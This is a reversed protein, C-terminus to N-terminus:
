ENPGGSPRLYNSFLPSKPGRYLHSDAPCGFEQELMSIIRPLCFGGQCRGTMTRCRQKIGILTIPGFIRLIASRVEAKSIEECRCLLAGFDPDEQLKAQRFEDSYYALPYPQRYIGEKQTFSPDWEAKMQVPVLDSVLELVHRAIAPSATLGPSEIGLLHIVRPHSTQQHIVFDHFGGISPPNLKPRLGAFSRIFDSTQLSPLLAQGEAKLLDMIETTSSFDQPDEIYENSPGILINGETTNTLHIGLGGSHAGPVPYILLNLEEALRKDLVYYEGRCPHITFEEYGTMRAVADAHLGACNIIVQTRIKEKGNTTRLTIEYHGDPNKSIAIAESLFRYAVGNAHAHEGLAITFSIPNIIGTSPSFLAQVGAIGPQKQEMQMHNLIQLDQVGNREGQIKLAHLQSVEHEHSAVTLKGIRKYAVSLRGCLEEMMRNGEVAFKARASGTAYHIGSHVVGSNRASTGFALDAEKEV